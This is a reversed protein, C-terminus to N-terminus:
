VPPISEAGAVTLALCKATGRAAAGTLRRWVHRLVANVTLLLREVAPTVARRPTTGTYAVAERCARPVVSRSFAALAVLAGNNIAPPVMGGLPSKHRIERNFSSSYLLVAERPQFWVSCYWATPHEVGNVPTPLRQATTSCLLSACCVAFSHMRATNSNLWAPPVRAPMNARQFPSTAQAAACVRCNETAAATGSQVYQIGNQQQQSKYILFLHCLQM